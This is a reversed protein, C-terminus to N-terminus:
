YTFDLQFTTGAGADWSWFYIFRSVGEPADADNMFADLSLSYKQGRELMDWPGLGVEVAGWGEALLAQLNKNRLPTARGPLTMVFEGSLPERSLQSVFFASALHGDLWYDRTKHLSISCRLALQAGDELEGKLVVVEDVNIGFRTTLVGSVNALSPAKLSIAQARAPTAALLLGLGLVLALARVPLLPFRARGRVPISHIIKM